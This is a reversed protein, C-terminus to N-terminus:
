LSRIIPYWEADVRIMEKEAGSLRYVGVYDVATRKDEGFSYREIGDIILSYSEAAEYLAQSDFNEPEVAAVANRIIDLVQYANGIALYGCGRDMVEEESNPYNEALLQKTLNIIEGEENWWRSARLFLSGDLEDWLHADDIMSYFALHADMGIIKGEYGAKRYDKVFANLITPPIVYDCDKLKEAEYGWNWTIGTTAYGGAWEYKDSHAKAYEEAGEILSQIYPTPWGTGGIKAPRDTPFDPDNDAIWQLLTYAEHQPYSGVSFVYGSPQLADRSAPATFIVMKDSDARSKLTVPTAPVPTWILDAGKEKLWEYGSIDRSPNYEGDYTIVKLDVGPILNERNFYEVADELANDIIGMANSSAGTKDTLNGIIIEVPKPSIVTVTAGPTEEDSGCSILLPLVLLLVALMVICLKSRNQM